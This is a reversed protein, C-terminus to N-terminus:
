IVEDSLIHFFNTCCKLKLLTTCSLALKRRTPLFELPADGVLLTRWVSVFRLLDWSFVIRYRIFLKMIALCLLSVYGQSTILPFQDEASICANDALCDYVPSDKERKGNEHIYKHIESIKNNGNGPHFYVCNTEHSKQSRESVICRIIRINGTSSQFSVWAKCYKKHALPLKKWSYLVTKIYVEKFKHINCKKM